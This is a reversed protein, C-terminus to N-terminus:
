VKVFTGSKRVPSHVSLLPIKMDSKKFKPWSLYLVSWVSFSQNSEIVGAM